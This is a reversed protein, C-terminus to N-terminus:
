NNVIKGYHCCGYSLSFYIFYNRDSAMDTIDSRYYRLIMFHKFTIVISRPRCDCASHQHVNILRVFKTRLSGVFSLHMSSSSFSIKSLKHTIIPLDLFLLIMINELKTPIDFTNKRATRCIYRDNHLNNYVRVTMTM